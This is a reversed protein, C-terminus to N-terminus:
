RPPYSDRGSCKGITIRLQPGATMKEWEAHSVRESKCYRPQVKHVESHCLSTEVHKMVPCLSQFNMGHAIIWVFPFIIISPWLVVENRSNKLLGESHFRLVGSGPGGSKHIKKKCFVFSAVVPNLPIKNCFAFM